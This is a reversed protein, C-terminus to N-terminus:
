QKSEIFNKIINEWEDDTLNAEKAKRLAIQARPTNQLYKSMEKDIKNSLILSENISQDLQKIEDNNLRLAIIIDKRLYPNKKSNLPFDRLGNELDCLFSPSIKVLKAFERITIQKEIRKNRLFENFKMPTKTQCKAM